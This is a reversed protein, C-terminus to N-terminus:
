SERDSAAEILAAIALRSTAPLKPEVLVLRQALEGLPRSPPVRHRKMWNHTASRGLAYGRSVLWNHLFTVTTSPVELLKLAEVRDVKTLLDDAKFHRPMRAERTVSASRPVLEDALMRLAPQGAITAKAVRHRASNRTAEPLKSSQAASVACNEEANLEGRAAANLPLM